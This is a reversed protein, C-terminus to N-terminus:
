SQASFNDTTPLTFAPSILGWGNTSETRLPKIVQYSASEYWTKAAEVSAFELVAVVQQPQGEVTAFEATATLVKGGAAMINPLALQVYKTWMEADHIDYNAIMYAAM